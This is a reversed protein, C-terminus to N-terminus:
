FPADIDGQRMVGSVPSMTVIAAAKAFMVFENRVSSYKMYGVTPIGM